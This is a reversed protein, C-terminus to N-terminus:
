HLYTLNTVKLSCTAQNCEKLLQCFKEFHVKFLAELNVNIFLLTQRSLYMFGILPNPLPINRKVCDFCSHIDSKVVSLM